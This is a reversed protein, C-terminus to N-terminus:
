IVSRTEVRTRNLLCETFNVEESIPKDEEANQYSLTKDVKRGVEETTILSLYHVFLTIDCLQNFLIIYNLTNTFYKAM